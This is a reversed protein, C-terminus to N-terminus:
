LLTGNASLDRVTETASGDPNLVTVDTQTRDFVGDGTIDQQTATSLGNPSVTVVTKDRVSGNGNLDTSTTTTSGDANLVTADTHTLDCVTDGNLDFPSTRVLGDASTTTVTKSRLSGDPNLLSVVDATAGNAQVAITEASDVHGDGNADAQITRTRGD